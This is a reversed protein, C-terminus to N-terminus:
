RIINFNVNSPIVYPPARRGNLYNIIYGPLRKLEAMAKETERGGGVRGGRMNRDGIM